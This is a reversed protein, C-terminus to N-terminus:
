TVLQNAEQFLFFACFMSSWNELFKIRGLNWSNLLETKLKNYMEIFIIIPTLLSTLSSVTM